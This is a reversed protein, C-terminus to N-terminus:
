PYRYERIGRVTRWIILVVALAIVGGLIMTNGAGIQQSMVGVELTGLNNASMASMSHFSVARGRMNDPTTLQVTTQRTTMSTADSVGLGVIFIIGMWLSTSVGFAILLVGYALTAYLVLMGKARYNALFLVIFSGAVGGFSNAATLVGVSGAGAKFLKDAILPMIQRYFSVVTVGIDLLYLGPLIPHTKVFLVGEWIRKLVSGDSRGAPVGPAHIMLPLIVGPLAAVATFAFTPKIGVFTIAAAFALPAIISGIQSTATNTTVAHLLHTRPVVNATLASRAPGGMVSTAGLIATGVFIHWPELNDTAVLAAMAAVVLFTFSQTISMLKKRDVQDALTGGYLIAPLQVSLQVLGILGLQVGSGTEQYLWVTTVLLRMQMAVMSAISSWWLVRYDRFAFASWPRLPPEHPRAEGTQQKASDSASSSPDSDGVAVSTKPNQNPPRTEDGPNYRWLSKLAFSLILITWSPQPQGM